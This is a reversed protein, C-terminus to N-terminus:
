RKEITLWQEDEAMRGETKEIISIPDYEELGLASLYQKLGCRQKPICREELFATFSEWDPNDNNGFARHVADATFNEVYLLKDTFDAAISTCLSERFYYKLERVDHGLRKKRLIFDDKDKFKEIIIREGDFYLEVDRSEESIGLQQMWLNPLSVKYTRSNGSATGGSSSIIINTKRKDM